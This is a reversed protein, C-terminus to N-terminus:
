VKLILDGEMGGNLM